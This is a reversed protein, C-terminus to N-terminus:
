NPGCGLAAIGTGDTVVVRGNAIIPSHIAGLLSSPRGRWEVKGDELSLVVLERADIAVLTDTGEAAALSTAWSVDATEPASLASRWAETGDSRRVAVVVGSPERFIVLSHALVPPTKDHTTAAISWRVVGTDVNRSTLVEAYSGEPREFLYLSEGKAALQSKPVTVASWLLEGDKPAHAFVGGGPSPAYDPAFLLRDGLLATGGTRDMVDEAVVGYEHRKWLPAGGAELAGVYTRPGAVYWTNTALLNKGNTIVEGWSDLGRDVEQEGTRSDLIYLGDDDLVVRDLLFAPWHHHTIDVHSDFTWLLKGELSLSFVSPSEGIVGSAFVADKSAVAHFIRSKRPPKPAPEHRWLPTLPGRCCGPTAGDRQADHALVPWTSPPCGLQIAVDHALKSLDSSARSHALAHAGGSDCAVALLASAALGVASRRTLEHAAPRM